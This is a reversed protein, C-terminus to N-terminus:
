AFIKNTHPYDRKVDVAQARGAGLAEHRPHAPLARVDNAQLLDLALLGVEGPRQQRRAAVVREEVGGLLPAVAPDADIRPALGVLDHRAQADGLEVRLAAVDLGIVAVQADHRDVKGRARRALLRLGALQSEEGGEHRAELGHARAAALEHEAAVPVHRVLLDVEPVPAGIPAAGPEGVLLALPQRVDELRVAEHVDEADEVRPRISVGPPRVEALRPRLVDAPADVVLDGRRAHGRQSAAAVDVDAAAEGVVRRERHVVLVVEFPLTFASLLLNGHQSNGVDRQPPAGSDQQLAGRHVDVGALLHPEDARVAAALRAEERDDAALQVRVRALNRQRRGPHERVDRLLRGRHLPRREVEHHVAVRLQALDLRPHRVLVALSQGLQHRVVVVDAAVLRARARLRQERAQAEVLRRLRAMDRAEGAAPAHAEVERAAEHATGVQQQQVLGGVVQVEIGHEPELVPQPRERARDHDDRMVALHQVGYGVLDNVHLVLAEGRVRAVVAGELRLAGLAERQLLRGVLLLLAGDLVQLREDVAEAGLGGLRFLRLAADLRQLLHLATAAAWTSVGKVKVKRAGASFGCWSKL